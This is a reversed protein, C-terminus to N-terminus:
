QEAVYYAHLSRMYPLDWGDKDAYKMESVVSRVEILDSIPLRYPFRSLETLRTVAAPHVVPTRNGATCSNKRKVEDM